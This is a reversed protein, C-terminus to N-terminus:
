GLIGGAKLQDLAFRIILYSTLIIILGIISNVITSKAQTSVDPNGQSTIYQYGGIILYIVAVLGAVGYAINFGATIVGQIGAGKLPDDITAKEGTPLIGEARATEVGLQYLPGVKLQQLVYNVILFSIMIVILGIIANIITMKASEIGEPNGSATMYRFGGIILYIVAVLGAAMFAVQIIEKIISQLSTFSTPKPVSFMQANAVLPLSILFILILIFWVKKM